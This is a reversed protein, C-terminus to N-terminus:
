MIVSKNIDGNYFTYRDSNLYSEACYHSKEYKQEWSFSLIDGNSDKWNQSSKASSTTYM